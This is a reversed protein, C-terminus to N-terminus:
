FYAYNFIRQGFDTGGGRAADFKTAHCNYRVINETLKKEKVKNLGETHEIILFDITKGVKSCFKNCLDLVVHDPTNHYQSFWILLVRKSNKIKEYFRNIRREYKQKVEPFADEFPKDAPFDHWFYFGTRTNEYYDNNKDAPFQTPKPMPRLDSKNLFDKFDNIMFNFRTEFDAHTLWDFPGSYSRIGVSNMYSATACDCGISYIINYKSHM